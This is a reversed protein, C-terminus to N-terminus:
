RPRSMSTRTMSPARKVTPTASIAVSIALPVPVTSAKSAAAPLRRRSATSLRASSVSVAMGLLINASMGDLNNTFTVAARIAGAM